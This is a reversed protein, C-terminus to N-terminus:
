CCKKRRTKDAVVLDNDIRSGQDQENNSEVMLEGKNGENNDSMTSDNEHPEGGIPDGKGKKKIGEEGAETNEKKLCEYIDERTMKKNDDTDNGEENGENEKNNENILNFVPLASVSKYFMEEINTGDKASIEFFELNNSESFKQGEENSIERKNELDTKNGLIVINTNEINEIFKIWEPLDLFSNKTTIDYVLFILSAGRIYNPILSRFKEQGASDWIQLKIMKSKYKITKTFFDVGISPEYEDNFKQGLLANIISTKGVSVDGTFIIKQRSVQYSVDMNSSDNM